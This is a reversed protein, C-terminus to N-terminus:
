RHKLLENGVMAWFKLINKSNNQCEKVSVLGELYNLQILIHHNYNLLMALSALNVLIKERLYELMGCNVAKGFLM